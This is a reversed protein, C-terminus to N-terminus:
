SANSLRGPRRAHRQRGARCNPGRHTESEADAPSEDPRGRGPSDAPSELLRTLLEAAAQKDTSRRGLYAVAAPLRPDNDRKASYYDDRKWDAVDSPRIPKATKRTEATRKRM